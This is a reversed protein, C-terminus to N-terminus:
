IRFIDSYMNINGFIDKESNLITKQFFLSLFYTLQLLAMFYSTRKSIEVENFSQVNQHTNKIFFYRKKWPILSSCSKTIFSSIFLTGKHSLSFLFELFLINKTGNISLENLKELIWFIQLSYFLKSTVYNNFLLLYFIISNASLIYLCLDLTIYMEQNYILIVNAWFHCLPWFERLLLSLTTM